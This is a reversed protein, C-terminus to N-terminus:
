CMQYEPLKTLYLVQQILKDGVNNEIEVKSGSAILASKIEDFGNRDIATSWDKKISAWNISTELNKLKQKVNLPDEQNPDGSLKEGAGAAILLQPLNMRTLLTGSDIWNLGGPWGAVNPPNLLRQGLVTQIAIIPKVGDMKMHFQKRIGVLLEVPSKVLIGRNSESYFWNSTFIKNLLKSVDYNNSHFYTSLLDIRDDDLQDNVLHKYIKATIYRATEKRELILDLVEEGDFNGTKGLFTKRDNDHHKPRKIFDGNFNMSWGTFARAAEKIDKETYINDRGLTFLEMVERAFNENPATKRNQRNNLYNIMAPEKSIAHLLEGFNGLAHKRLTNVYSLAQKPTKPECAFHNHWFLSMKERLAGSESAMSNLWDINLQRVSKRSKKRIEMLQDDDAMEYQRLSPRIWDTNLAKFEKSDAFIWKVLEHHDKGEWRALFSYNAGFGARWMLHNTTELTLKM